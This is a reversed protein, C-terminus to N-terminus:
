QAEPVLPAAEEDKKGFGVGVDEGTQTAKKSSFVYVCGAALFVLTALAAVTILDSNFHLKGLSVNHNMPEFLTNRWLGTAAHHAATSNPFQHIATELGAIAGFAAVAVVGSVLVVAGSIPRCYSQSASHAPEENKSDTSQVVPSSPDALLPKSDGEDVQLEREAEGDQTLTDSEDVPVPVQRVADIDVARNKSHLPACRNLCNDGNGPDSDDPNEPSKDFVVEELDTIDSERVDSEPTSGGLSESSQSPAPKKEGSM